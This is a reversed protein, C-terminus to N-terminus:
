SSKPTLSFGQPPVSQVVSGVIKDVLTQRQADWLPWLYNLIGPVLCLVFAVGICLWRVIAMGAGLAQGTDAKVCKLGALRMGPTSGSQGIQVAFWIGFCLGWLDGIVRFIGGPAYLL